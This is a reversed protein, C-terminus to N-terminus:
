SHDALPTTSTRSTGVCLRGCWPHRYRRSHPSAPRWCAVRCCDLCGKEEWSSAPTEPPGLSRTSAEAGPCGSGRSRQRWRPQEGLGATAGLGGLSSPHSIDGNPDHAGAYDRVRFRDDAGFEPHPNQESASRSQVDPRRPTPPPSRPVLARITRPRLGGHCGDELNWRGSARRQGHRAQRRLRSGGGSRRLHPQM